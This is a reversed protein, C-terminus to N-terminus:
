ACPGGRLAQPFRRGTKADVGMKKLEETWVIKMLQEDPRKGTAHGRVWLLDFRRDGLVKRMLDEHVAHGPGNLHTTHCAKCAAVANEPDFRTSQQGRGFFHASDLRYREEPMDEDAQWHCLQCTWKYFFRIYLSFLEDAKSRKMKFGNWSM